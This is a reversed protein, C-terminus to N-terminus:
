ATPDAKLRAAAAIVCRTLSELTAQEAVCTSMGLAAAAAATQRGICVARVKGYDMDGLAAAFGRVTSASTFVAFDIEGNELADKEERLRSTTFVTDYTPLDTIQLQPGQRLGAILEPNGIAARPILLRAGPRCLGALERGLTEGDFRSPLFDAKLGYQRLAKQTGQGLAALRLGALARLDTLELLRDCFIRVGSPSTFVLWDYGGQELRRISEDVPAPDAVPRTAIAPLELVEAGQERLLRALGSTLEKPRTVLVRVGSLPQKEYWSFDEALTCVDGIVIIAPTQVRARECAATLESLPASVRRQDATTGKELVAGPTEPAMGAALLGRCIDPLAAVGMLFIMTGKTAALAAFNIDYTHDARRHGTIIHVSACYDRHTVPIGNYAPVALASTVGPVVEFPVNHAALLELEEGGRGFLFPDGGKLRVVRRGQLAEELLVRNTEEQRLYHHGARKGAFILRAQEPILNLVGPGVLADYVVVDAQELVQRGKLTLLGEDGPGAGVLWVKGTM